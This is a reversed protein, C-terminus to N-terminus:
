IELKGLEGWSPGYELDAKIPIPTEFPLKQKEMITKVIKATVKLEDEPVELIISDHVTNVIRSRMDKKKLFSNIHYMALLCIDAASSQVRTNIAQREARGREYSNYANINIIKRKRDFLTKVNGHKRAYDITRAYWPVLGKYKEFYNNRYQESESMSLDIGYGDKAYFVFGKASMGYLFGFNIAKANQREEDTIDAPDKQLAAAATMRHIDGDNRYIELMAPENACIAAVRLEVQSYDAQLIYANKYSPVFLKKIDKGVQGKSPINQLNPASSSLRFTATIDQNYNCHIKNDPKLHKGLLPTAYTTTVKEYLKYELLKEVFPHKDKLSKLTAADASRKGSKTKKLVPLKLYDYLIIALQDNSNINIEKDDFFAALRVSAKENVYILEKAEALTDDRKKSYREVLGTGYKIDIKAGALEIDIITICGKMVVEYFVDHLDNEILRKSLIHFIEMTNETDECNYRAVEQLPVTTLEVDKEIIGYDSPYGLLEISLRKLSNSSGDGQNLVSSMLATDSYMNNVPVNILNILGKVDFKINHAIKRSDNSFIERLLTLVAHRNDIKTEPHDVPICINEGELTTFGITTILNNPSYLDLGYQGGRSEIDFAWLKSITLRDRAKEVDEISECMTFDIKKATSKGDLISKVKVLDNEFMVRELPNNLIYTPEYMPFINLGDKRFLEGRTKKIGSKNLFFKLPWQGLTIIMELNPMGEILKVLNVGCSKIQGLTPDARDPLKCLMVSTLYCDTLEIGAKVISNTLLRGTRGSLARKYKIDSETPINDVILIKAIALNGTSAIRTNSLGCTLCDYVKKSSKKKAVTKEEAKSETIPNM